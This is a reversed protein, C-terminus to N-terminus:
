ASLGSVVQHKDGVTSAGVKATRKALDSRRSVGAYLVGADVAVITPDWGLCTAMKEDVVGNVDEAGSRFGINPRGGGRIEM